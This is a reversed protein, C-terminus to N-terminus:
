AAGGARELRADLGLAGRPLVLLPNVELAALEPHAAAVRSLAALATAAAATDLPPRGRAGTLLPAGRLSAILAGAQAEDVPALAVAADALVETYLGGLGVVAIPGFRADWRAGILLEVGDGLPAMAEVTYAPPDLRREMDGLARTLAAADRLGLAVGGADSKHLLGLAKLVVPYGLEAAAAVAETATTVTRAHAFRVGGPELLARALAYGDGDGVPPAAAPLAPVGEAPAVAALRALVDVAREIARYVPVGAHRLTASAATGPHM